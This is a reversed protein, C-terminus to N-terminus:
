PHESRCTPSDDTEESLVLSYSNPDKISCERRGYAFVEPGWERTAHARVRDLLARVRSTGGRQPGLDLLLQGTMSPPGPWLTSDFIITPTRAGTAPDVFDLFAPTPNEVPHLKAARFGLCTTYFAVTAALDCAALFPTISRITAAERAAAQPLESNNM